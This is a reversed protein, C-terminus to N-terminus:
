ASAERRSRTYIQYLRYLAPRYVKDWAGITRRIEGGFGRKFRYVGWLGVSRDM